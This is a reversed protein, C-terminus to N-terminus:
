GRCGCGKSAMPTVSTMPAAYAYSTCVRPVVVTGTAIGQPLQYALSPKVVASLKGACGCPSVATAVRVPQQYVPSSGSCGCSM